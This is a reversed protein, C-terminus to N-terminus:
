RDIRLFKGNKNFELEEGSNLELQQRSDDSKWEVAYSNPYNVIVYKQILPPLLSNPVRSTGEIEKLKNNAFELKTGNDLKLEYETKRIKKERTSQVIRSTPYHKRVLQTIAAPIQNQAITVEQAATTPAMILVIAGATITKLNNM